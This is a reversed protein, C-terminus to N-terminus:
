FFLDHDVPAPLRVDRFILFGTSPVQVPAAVGIRAEAPGSHPTFPILEIVKPV